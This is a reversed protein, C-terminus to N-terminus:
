KQLYLTWSGRTKGCMSLHSWPPSRQYAQPHLFQRNQGRPPHRTKGSGSPLWIRHYNSDRNSRLIDLETWASATSPERRWLLEHALFFQHQLVRDKTVPHKIDYIHRPRAIFLLLGFFGERLNAFCNFTCSIVVGDSQGAALECRTYRDLFPSSHEHQSTWEGGRRGVIKLCNETHLRGAILVAFDFVSSIVPVKKLEYKLFYM